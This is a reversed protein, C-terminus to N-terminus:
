ALAPVYEELHYFKNPHFVLLVARHENVRPTGKIADVLANLADLWADQIQEYEEPAVEEYDGLVDAEELRATAQLAKKYISKREENTM